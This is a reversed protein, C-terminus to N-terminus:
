APPGARAASVGHADDVAGDEAGRKRAAAGGCRRGRRRTGLCWRRQQQQRWRWRRLSQWSPQFYPAGADGSHQRRPRIGGLAGVAGTTRRGGLPVSRRRCANSSRGPQDTRRWWGGKRRGRVCRRGAGWAGCLRAAMQVRRRASSSCTTVGWASGCTRAASARAALCALLRVPVPRPWRGAPSRSSCSTSLLSRKRM